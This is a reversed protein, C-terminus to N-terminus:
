IKKAYPTCGDRRVGQVKELKGSTFLESLRPKISDRHWGTLAEIEKFTLNARLEFMAYIKERMTKANPAIREATEQSAGGREKFGPSTPYNTTLTM